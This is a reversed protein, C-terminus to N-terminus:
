AAEQRLFSAVSARHRDRWDTTNAETCPLCRCGWNGYTTQLGHKEDPLHAAVLRGDVLVRRAMRADRNRKARTM